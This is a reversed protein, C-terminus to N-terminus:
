KAGLERCTAQQAKENYYGPFGYANGYTFGSTPSTWIIPEKAEHATGFLACLRYSEAFWEGASRNDSGFPQWWPTTLRWTSEFLPANEKGAFNYEHGLEHYLLERMVEFPLRRLWIRGPEACGGLLVATTAADCDRQLRAANDVYVYIPGPVSPVKMEAAWKAVPADSNTVLTVAQASSPMALVALIM